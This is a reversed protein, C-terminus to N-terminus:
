SIEEIKKSIIKPNEKELQARGQSKWNFDCNHEEAYRHLACFISGCRCKIGVLGTKKNCKFCRSTEEKSLLLETKLKKSANIILSPVEQEERNLLFGRKL